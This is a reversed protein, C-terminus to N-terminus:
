PVLARLILATRAATQAAGTAGQASNIWPLINRGAWTNAMDAMNRAMPFAKEALRANAETERNSLRMGALKVKLNDEIYPLEYNSKTYENQVLGTRPILTKDLFNTNLVAAGSRARNEAILADASATDVKAKAIKSITDADTNERNARQTQLDSYTAAASRATNTASAVKDQMTATSGSPSSAGGQGYALAPNLNAAKMDAVARQYSTNSMREQFDRNKQAQKANANNMQNGGLWGLAAGAVAGIGTGIGPIVSGAAAGAAAGDAIGM